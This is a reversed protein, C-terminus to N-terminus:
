AQLASQIASELEPLENKVTRWVVETDVDFYGHILRNRMGVMARWPTQPAASRTDDSVKGAAEGIVELARVTAFLLM